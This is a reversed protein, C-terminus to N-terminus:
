AAFGGAMDHRREGRQAGLALQLQHEGVTVQGDATGVRPAAWGASAGAALLAAQQSRDPARSRGAARRHHPPQAVGLMAAGPVDLLAEGGDRGVRDLLGVLDGVRDLALIPRGQGALEAVQQQLHDVVGLHAGLLAAEIEIGDGVADGVLHDGAVRMDEAGLLHGAAGRQGRM